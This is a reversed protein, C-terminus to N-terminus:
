FLRVNVHIRLQTEPPKIIDEAPTFVMSMVFKLKAQLSCFPVVGTGMFGFLIAPSVPKYLKNSYRYCYIIISGVVAQMAITEHALNLPIVAPQM